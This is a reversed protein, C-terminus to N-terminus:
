YAPRRIYPKGIKNKLSKLQEYTDKPKNGYKKVVESPIIRGTEIARMVQRNASGVPDADKYIVEVDYGANELTNIWKEQLKGLEDGIVPILLNDGNRDGGELFHSLASKLIDKSEQHVSDAAGGNSEKFEPIQEKVDDSDFVFGGFEQKLQNNIITSKGSAPLGIVVAAKHEKKTAPNNELFKAEINKRLKDREPTNIESTRGYKKGYEEAKADLMKVVPHAMLEDIPLYKGSKITDYLEKGEPYVLGKKKETADDEHEIKKKLPDDTTEAELSQAGDDFKKEVAKLKQNREAFAQEVTQGDKIFVHNGNITIWKGDAM